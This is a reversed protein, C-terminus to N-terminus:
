AIIGIALECATQYICRVQQFFHQVYSDMLLQDFDNTIRGGYQITGLMYRITEWTPGVAKKVDIDLM